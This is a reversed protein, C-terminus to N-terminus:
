PLACLSSRVMEAVAPRVVTCVRLGVRKGMQRGPDQGVKGAENRDIRWLKGQAIGEM